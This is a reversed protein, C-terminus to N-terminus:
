RSAWSPVRRRRARLGIAWYGGDAAPGLVADVARRAASAALLDGRTVQPTDMGVLLAPGGVDAFARPWASTSGTAASPSSRSARRWGPAPGPRGARARAAGAATALVADLTDALAAAALAAAERPTCPPCLRTKVRGPRPAKAM